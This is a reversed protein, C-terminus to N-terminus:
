RRRSTPRRRSRRHRGADARDRVAVVDATRQAPRRMAVADGGDLRRLAADRGEVLAGRGLPRHERMQHRRLPRQRAADAVDPSASSTILWRSGRSGQHTGAGSTPGFGFPGILTASAFSGSSM